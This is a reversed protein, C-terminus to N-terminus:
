SIIIIATIAFVVAIIKRIDVKENYFIWSIVSVIVLASQSVPIVVGVDGKKLATLIFYIAIVLLSGSMAAYKIIKKSIVFRKKFLLYAFSLISVTTFRWLLIRFNSETHIAALKNVFNLMGGFLCATVAFVIYRTEKPAQINKSRERFLFICAVFLSIALIKDVTLKEDILVIALIIGPIMNLRFITVSTSTNNGTFSFLFFVYTVFSLIGLVAGYVIEQPMFYFTGSEGAAMILAIFASAISSFAYFSLVENKKFSTSSSRYILDNLANFAAGALSLLVVTDL